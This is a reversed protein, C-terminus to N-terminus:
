TGLDNAFEWPTTASFIEVSLQM